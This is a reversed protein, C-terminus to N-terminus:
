VAHKILTCACFLRFSVGDDASIASLNGFKGKPIIWNLPSNERHSPYHPLFRIKLQRLDQSHRDTYGIFDIRYGNFFGVSAGFYVFM